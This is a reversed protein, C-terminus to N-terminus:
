IGKENNFKWLEQELLKLESVDMVSGILKIPQGNEARETIAGRDHYWAYSGDKRRIRYTVMYNSTKGILHNRMIEMTYNYDDPHILECVKYVNTPFDELKYGIMTAKKEDFIVEGTKVDWEWWAMKAFDLADSLRKSTLSSKQQENKFSNINVYTILIGDVANSEVRYPRTRVLYYNGNDDKFENEVVQLTETVKLIDDMIPQNYNFDSIHSIPRGLDTPIINTIRSISPTIKRICLNRDLYLAGIETNNLLNSIDNNLRELEDIKLQFESNVTYLEENVSQLEENTSQLEENSAILEENSSQLEENSTELEEITAQLAERSLQLERELGTIRESFDERLEVTGINNDIALQEDDVKFVILFYNNKDTEICHGELKIRTSNLEKFEMFNESRISKNSKRIRRLFSSVYLAFSDPLISYLNQSFKGSNLKTFKNVDGIIQVINDNSDIIFGPPMYYPLIKELLKEGKYPPVFRNSYPQLENMSQSISIIPSLEKNFSPKYGIKQQYIKNKSDLAHFAESMDGISESSGMFLFGGSSLSYYFMSLLKAQIDPKLYIFLNRCILMDLKSFPPDKLLNHTAFVIMRRIIEKVQFGGEVRNFYKVLFVADVDAMINDPYFGQGAVSLAQRDIDTAFIKVEADINMAEMSECLLMAMSYVEEGTSCATSWIRISKGKQDLLLPIVSDNIFQFAEPDRFFRTVGILLDRFLTDKEKDSQSLLILYEDLSGCRNISVRRELRRIITNSKYYSFDIGCFDRLILTIKTLTDFDRALINEIANSKQIFPHKVYDILVAPMKDPSLIFDVLGTSISSRPMGDFKATKEDQVMVMGGVEKIARTGLAGDSGTGSLIIGIGNKGKEHALSRFFIDIPLNLGKKPNYDELFLQDHFISLNKRPPILYLTNSEIHMGDEIIHITMRTQRALLEDMMSKYDPSLHQIVVFALGNDVPMAKFFDQLAELGGASAGIAVVVQKSIDMQITFKQLLNAQSKYIKTDNINLAKLSKQVILYCISYLLLFKIEGEYSV